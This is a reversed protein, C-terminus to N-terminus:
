WHDYITLYDVKFKCWKALNATPAIWWKKLWDMFNFHALHSSHHATGYVNKSMSLMEWCCSGTDGTCQSYQLWKAPQLQLSRKSWIAPGLSRWLCQRRAADGPGLCHLWTLILRPMFSPCSGECSIPSRRFLHSRTEASVPIKSISSYKTSYTFDVGAVKLLTWWLACSCPIALPQHPSREAPRCHPCISRHSMARILDTSDWKQTISWKFSGISPHKTRKIHM